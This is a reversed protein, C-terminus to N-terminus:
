YPESCVTIGYAHFSSSYIKFYFLKVLTFEKHDVIQYTLHFSQISTKQFYTVRHIKEFNFDINVYHFCSECYLNYM